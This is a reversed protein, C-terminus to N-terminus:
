EKSIHITIKTGKGLKSEIELTAGIQLMLRNRVNEIGIHSKDDKNIECPNFGIGDDEVIVQIEDKKDLVSLYITGGEEKDGVGYKVANEVLPQVTLSPIYFDTTEINWVVNLYDGFRMKELQLYIEIHKLEEDFIIPDRKKLSDLNGRLYQSFMITANKAQKADKDCLVSIASLANYLFHPQIQSLMIQIRQETLEHLMKQYQKAEIEVFILLMAVAMGVWIFNLGYVKMQIIASVFPISLILLLYIEDAKKRQGKQFMKLFIDLISFCPYILCCIGELTGWLGWTRSYINDATVAFVCGTRINVILLIVGLIFPFSLLRLSWKTVKHKLHIRCYVTLIYCQLIQFFYYFFNVVLNIERGFQMPQRDVLWFISDLILELITIYLLVIFIKDERNKLQIQKYFLWVVMSAIFIGFLNLEIRFINEM